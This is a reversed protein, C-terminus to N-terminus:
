NISNLKTCPYCIWYFQLEEKAQSSQCFFFQHLNNQLVQELIGSCKTKTDSKRWEYRQYQQQPKISFHTITVVIHELHRINRSSPFIEPTFSLKKKFNPTNSIMEMTSLYSISLLPSCPVWMFYNNISRACATM